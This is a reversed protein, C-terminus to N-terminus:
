VLVPIKDTCLAMGGAHVFVGVGRVVAKGGGPCLDADATLCTVALTRPMDGPSTILLAPPRECFLIIPRFAQQNAEVLALIDNPVMVRARAVRLAIESRRESALLDLCASETVGPAATESSQIGPRDSESVWM